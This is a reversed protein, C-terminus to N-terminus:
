LVNGNNHLLEQEGKKGAHLVPIGLIYSIQHYDLVQFKGEPLKWGAEKQRYLSGIYEAVASSFLIEFLSCQNTGGGIV